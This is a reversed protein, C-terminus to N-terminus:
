YMKIKFQQRCLGNEVPASVVLCNINEKKLYYLSRIASKVSVTQSQCRIDVYHAGKYSLQVVNNIFQVDCPTHFLFNCTSAQTYVMDEVDYGNETKVVSRTHRYGNRSVMTGTFSVPTHVVDEAQSRNYVLFVGLRNMQELGFPKATNHGMTSALEAGEESAYSYTGGDCFINVGRHWLDLHLQDFHAPRSHYDQLIIIACSQRHRLTYLGAAPYESSVRSREVVPCLEGGFWLTEEDYDDSPYIRSGGCLQSIAQVVPRYDTYACATLPFILSGDNHGYCPVQGSEDQMNYLLHASAAIRRRAEDSLAHHTGPEISLLCEIIQLAFRQYNFSYQVYGGDAQFQNKIEKELLGYARTIRRNDSCCWAGIVMGTLESLTHNNKICRHAYFFNSLIKRYSGDVVQRTNREDEDTAYGLSDFVSYAMLANIMRLACEQGCKYNAGRSYTNKAVWDSLQSSYARYYSYDNTLLCARAFLMFHTFRSAEWIVKIDGREPDFDPIRFWHDRSDCSGGTLPNRQWAIPNGYNLEQSSFAIIIGQAAKDAREILRSQSSAPLEELFAAICQTNFKFLDVRKVDVRKEFLREAFPMACLFKLKASYAARAMCWTLGQERVIAKLAHKNM